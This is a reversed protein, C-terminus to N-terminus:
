SGNVNKRLRELIDPVMREAFGALFSLILMKFFSSGDLLGLSKALKDAHNSKPDVGPELMKRELEFYKRVKRKDDLESQMTAIEQIRKASAAENAALTGQAVQPGPKTLEALSGELVTIESAIRNDIAQANMAPGTINSAPVAAMFLGAMVVFYLVLAFIGGSIVSLLIGTWGLRLGILEFIGDTTMADHSIASQLRQVISMIAGLMGAYALVGYGITSVEPDNPWAWWILLSSTAAAFFGLLIFKLRRTSKERGLNIMYNSHIVDLLTRAQGVLFSKDKWQADGKQPVNGWYQARTAAPVVREFRDLIAWFRNATVDDPLIHVLHAEIKLFM